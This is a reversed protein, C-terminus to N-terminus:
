AGPRHVPRRIEVATLLLLRYDIPPLKGLLRKLFTRDEPPQAVPHALDRAHEYRTSTLQM